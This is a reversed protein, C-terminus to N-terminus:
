EAGQAVAVAAAFADTHTISIDIPGNHGVVRVIPRGSPMYSVEIDKFALPVGLAKMVAEKVAFRGALHQYYLRGAKKQATNLEKCSFVRNLFRDKWKLVVEQMRKVDVLDIGIKM